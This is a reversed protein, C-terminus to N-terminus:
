RPARVRRNRVAEEGRFMSLVTALTRKADDAKTRGVARVLARDQKARLARAEAIAAHAKKSLAVESKRADSRSTTVTVYGLRKLELVTKSVAQSTVGMLTALAGIDRPGVILHQFVYGHAFRLGPHKRKMDALVAEQAALGASYALSGLDLALPDVRARNM